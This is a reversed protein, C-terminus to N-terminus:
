SSFPEGSRPEPSPTAVAKISRHQGPHAASRSHAAKWGHRLVHGIFTVLEAPVDYAQAFKRNSMVGLGYPVQVSGSALPKLELM